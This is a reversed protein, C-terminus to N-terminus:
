TYEIPFGNGRDSRSWHFARTMAHVVRRSARRADEDDRAAIRMM